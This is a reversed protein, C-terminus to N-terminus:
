GDAGKPAGRDRHAARRARDASSPARAASTPRSVGCEEAVAAQRAEEATAAEKGLAVLQQRLAAAEESAGLPELKARLEALTANCQDAPTGAQQWLAALGDTPVRLTLAEDM